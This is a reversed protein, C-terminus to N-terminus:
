YNIKCCQLILMGTEAFLAQSLLSVGPALWKQRGISLYDMQKQKDQVVLPISQWESSPPQIYM